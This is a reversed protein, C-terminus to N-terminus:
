ANETIRWKVSGPTSFNKASSSCRVFESKGIADVYDDWRQELDVKGSELDAEATELDLEM